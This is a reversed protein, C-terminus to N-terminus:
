NVLGFSRAYRAKGAIGRLAGPVLELAMFADPPFPAKILSAKAVSFGFRAYYDPEGLVFVSQENQRRLSGLGHEILVTGVGGGQYAPLVAVPALAVARTAGAAHDIWVRSFVIHGVISSQVEAVLSLLIASESRLSEVLNAEDARGFASEDIQRVTAFDETTEPRVTLSVLEPKM